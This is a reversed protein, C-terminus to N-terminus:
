SDEGARREGRRGVYGNSEGVAGKEGRAGVGRRERENLSGPELKCSCDALGM